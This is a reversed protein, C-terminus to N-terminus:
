LQAASPRTRGGCAVHECSRRNSFESSYRMWTHSRHPSMASALRAVPVMRQRAHALEVCTRARGLAPRMPVRRECEDVTVRMCLLNRLHPERVGALQQELLQHAHADGRTEDDHVFFGAHLLVFVIRYLFTYMLHALSPGRPGPHPRPFPPLPTPPHGPSARARRHQWGTGHGALGCSTGTKMGTALGHM